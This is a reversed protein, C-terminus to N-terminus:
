LAGLDEIIHLLLARCGEEIQENVKSFNGTYWPDEIDGPHDTWDLLRSIKADPDSPLIRKLGRLNYQEMVVLYDYEHYDAETVRRAHHGDCRIGHKKLEAKAPPYVPNGIEENSTAASACSIRDSLGADSVMQRFVFESIPSRCINGHCIFLVRIM